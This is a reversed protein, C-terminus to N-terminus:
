STNSPFIGSLNQPSMSLQLLARTCGSFDGQELIEEIKGTVGRADFYNDAHHCVQQIPFNSRLWDDLQSQTTIEGPPPMPPFLNRLLPGFDGPLPADQVPGPTDPLALYDMQEFLTTAPAVAQQTPARQMQQLAPPMTDWGGTVGTADTINGAWAPAPPPNEMRMADLHRPLGGPTVGVAGPLPGSAARTRPAAAPAPGTAESAQPSHVPFGPSYPM